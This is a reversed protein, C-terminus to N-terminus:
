EPAACTALVACAELWTHRILKWDANPEARCRLTITHAVGIMRNGGPPGGTAVFTALDAYQEVDYQLV